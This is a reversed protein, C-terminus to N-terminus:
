FNPLASNLCSGFLSNYKDSIQKEGFFSCIDDRTKISGSTLLDLDRVFCDFGSDAQAKDIFPLDNVFIQGSNFRELFLRIDGVDTSLVPIGVGLAELMAIPLGEYISTIIMGDALAMLDPPCPHFPIRKLNTLDEKNIFTDCEYAMEGDGVMLFFCDAHSKKASRVLNLFTMPKKQESLRGVFIFVKSYENPIGTEQRHRNREHVNRRASLVKKDSLMPYILSVRHIPIRFRNIFSDRIKSNIAIFHDFSQIGKRHYQNIWGENIDYVQQDIIMVDSFIRRLDVSNEALWPSGNCIWILQPPMLKKLCSLLHLHYEQSAIEALDFVPIGLEYLQWHLSGQSVSLYETTIVVFRYISKLSQIVEITNREVGGVALFIPLVFIVPRKDEATTQLKTKLLNFLLTRIEPAMACPEGILIDAGSTSISNAYLLTKAQLTNEGVNERQPCRIIRGRGNHIVEGNAIRCASGFSTFCQSLGMSVILPAEVLSNSTIVFDYKLCSLALLSNPLASDSLSPALYYDPLHNRLTERLIKTCNQAFPQIHHNHNLFHLAESDEEIKPFDHLFRSYVRTIEGDMHSSVEGITNAGHIRYTVLFASTHRANGLITARLAFDLDHVYRFDSFGGITDFLQRTFAMNSTTAIFNQNLLLKLVEQNGLLSKVPIRAPMPYEPDYVGRKTGRIKSKEDCILMSGSIFTASQTQALMRITEFSRPLFFDDSNLIRIWPQSALLCLQNLRNHAGRNVPPNESINRVRDPFEQVLRGCLDSSADRSGDDCLLVEKVLESKLASEVAERLFREHNYVPIIVSFM